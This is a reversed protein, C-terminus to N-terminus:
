VCSAILGSLLQTIGNGGYIMQPVIVPAGFTVAIGLALLLAQGWTAKGISAAIGMIMVALTALGRGVDSWIMTVVNCLVVGVPTYGSIAFEDSGLALLAILSFIVLHLLKEIEKTKHKM